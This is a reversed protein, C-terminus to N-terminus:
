NEHSPHTSLTQELHQLLLRQFFPSRDWATPPVFNTLSTLSDPGLKQYVGPPKEADPRFWLLSAGAEMVPMALPDPPQASVGIAIVGVPIAVPITYHFDQYVVQWQDLLQRLGDADGFVALRGRPATGDPPPSFLGAIDHKFYDPPLLRLPVKAIAVRPGDVPQLWLELELNVPKTIKEEPLSFVGSALAPGPKSGAPGFPIDAPLSAALEGGVLTLHGFIKPAPGSAIFFTAALGAPDGDFREVLAPIGTGAPGDLAVLSVPQAQAATAVGILGLWLNLRKKM